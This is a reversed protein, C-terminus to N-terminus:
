TMYDKINGSINSVIQIYNSDGWGISLDTIEPPLSVM